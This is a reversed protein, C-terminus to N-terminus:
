YEEPKEFAFEEKAILQLDSGKGKKYKNKLKTAEKELKKKNESFYIMCTYDLKQKEYEVFRKLQVAYQERAPLFGDLLAVSDLVQIDTCYVITDNFSAAFGFAYVPKSDKGKKLTAASCCFFVVALAMVIKVYKM